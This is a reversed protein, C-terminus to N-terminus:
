IKLDILFANCKDCKKIPTEKDRHEKSNAQSLKLCEKCQNRDKKARNEETLEIGCIKVGTVGSCHFRRYQADSHAKEHVECYSLGESKPKKCFKQIGKDNRTPWSCFNGTDNQIVEVIKKPTLSKKRCTKCQNRDPARNDETLEVGCKYIAKNSNCHFKNYHTESHKKCYFLGEAKPKPCFKQVGKKIMTPWGCDGNTVDFSGTEDSSGCPNNKENQVVM